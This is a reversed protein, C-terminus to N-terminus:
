FFLILLVICVPLLVTLRTLSSLFRFGALFDQIVGFFLIITFIFATFINAKRGSRFIRKFLFYVITGAALLVALLLLLDVVPVLFQNESYGHVIFFLLVGGFYWDASLLKRLQGAAM